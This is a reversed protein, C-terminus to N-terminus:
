AYAEAISQMWRADALADEVSPAPDAGALLCRRFEHLEARFAEEHSVTVDEVVLEGEHMREIRLPTPFHRFYPSPFTLTVREDPGVFRLTEEYHRLGPLFIWSLHARVDGPFRTLSSQAFGGRWVHASVVSEPPGLIGRVADIDHLLSEFLLLAGVRHPLPAQPGLIRDVCGALPGETMRAVTGRVLQDEPALPRDSIPLLAHHARSAADDPHLVTVEVYRLDRMERVAQRARLYAPDFRKHYGLMVKGRGRRAAAAVEETEPLSFALPKEVFLHKGSAITDLAAERHCGSTLVLVADVDDRSLLGRYDTHRAAVGYRDGVADLVERSVDALGAIRFLDPREALTPLHMMQAIGGCGIVAVRLPGTV